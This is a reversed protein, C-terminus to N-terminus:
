LDVAEGKSEDWISRKGKFEVPLMLNRGDKVPIIFFEEEKKGFLVLKIKGSKKGSEPDLYGYRVFRGRDALGRVEIKGKKSKTLVEGPYKM